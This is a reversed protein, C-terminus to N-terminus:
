FAVSLELGYTRPTGVAAANHGLANGLPMGGVFYGRNGINKAYVAASLPSGMIKDWGLRANVLVYGPLLTDPTVSASASSFYQSTQGYVDGRLTLEGYSEPVPLTIQAYASGSFEPMDAAPGYLYTRGLLTVNGNPYESTVWAFQGGIELWDAPRLSAEAEVGRVVQSPVNVTVAGGVPFEVRQVDQVWQYFGDLNFTARRGFVTGAFKLGAEIDQTHESRFANNDPIGAFIPPTAAGSFGGARFSGRTKAYLLLDPNAQYQLGFEWSPDAFSKEQDPATVFFNGPVDIQSFHVKEWTYRVGGTVSLRDTLAYTAQAYVAQTNTQSRFGNTVCGGATCTGFTPPYPPNLFYTQPWVTDTTQWQFYAGVIFKLRDDMTTGSLQLEDTIVDINLQNGTQGTAQNYTAITVYPIGLQPQVSNVQSQSIGFINKLTLESGLELTSTNTVIWDYGHHRAGGPHNTTYIGNAAAIALYPKLFSTNCNLYSCNTDYISWPYSAGTNTGDVDTYQFM